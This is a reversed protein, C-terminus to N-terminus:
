KCAGLYEANIYGTVKGTDVLWWGRYIYKGVVSTGNQLTTIVGNHEIPYPRVNVAKEATVCLEITVQTPTAAIPTETSVSPHTFQIPPTPHLTSPEVTNSVPTVPQMCALTALTLVIFSLFARKM